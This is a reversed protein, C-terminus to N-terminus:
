AGDTTMLTSQYDASVGTRDGTCAKCEWKAPGKILQSPCFDVIEKMIGCGNCRGKMYALVRSGREQVKAVGMHAEMGRVVAAVGDAAVVAEAGADSYEAIRWLATSGQEQVEAVGVHADMGGVVAAVGGAAVVAEMGADSDCAIRGLVISGREHVEAVRAHAQMGGVVAAVGGAAVLGDGKGDEMLMAMITEMGAQLAVTDDTPVAM